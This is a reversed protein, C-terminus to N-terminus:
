KDLHHPGMMETVVIQAETESTFNGTIYGGGGQIPEQIVPASIVKDNMVFALRHGINAKTLSAFQDGGKPTFQLKIRPTGQQDTSVKADALSDGEMQGERKLWLATPTGTDPKAVQVQDDGVPGQLANDSVNEDVVRVAFHPRSMQANSQATAVAGFGFNLTLFVLGVTASLSFRRTDSPIRLLQTIQDKPRSANAEFALGWRPRRRAQVNKHTSAGPM